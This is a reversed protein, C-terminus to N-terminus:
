CAAVAKLIPYLAQADSEQENEKSDGSEKVEPAEAPPADTMAHDQDGGEQQQEQQRGQGEPNVPGQKEREEHEAILSKIYVKLNQILESDRAVVTKQSHSQADLSGLSPDILSNSIEQKVEEEYTMDVDKAKQLVGVSYRRREASDFTPGLSAAPASSVPANYSGNASVTTPLSPYMSSSVQPSVTPPTHHPSHSTTYNTGPPTLASSGSSVQPAVPAMSAAPAGDHGVSNHAQQPSPQPPQSAPTHPSQNANGRYQFQQQPNSDHVNASLQTLFNDADLLDQKTRLSPLTYSQTTPPATSTATHGYDVAEGSTSPVYLLASLRQVMAGDYVPQIKNRKADEFLQDIGDFSRKKNENQHQAHAQAHAHAHAQAQAHAQAAAAQAAQAIAEQGNQQQSYYYVGPNQPANNPYYSGIGAVPHSNM